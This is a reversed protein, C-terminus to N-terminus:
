KTPNDNQPLQEVVSRASAIPAFQDPGLRMAVSLAESVRGLDEVDDTLSAAQRTILEIAAAKDPLAVLYSVAQSDGRYESVRILRGEGM